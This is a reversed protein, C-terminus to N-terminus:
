RPMVIPCFAPPGFVAQALEGLHQRLSWADYGRASKAVARVLDALPPPVAGPLGGGDADGGLLVAVCRASM